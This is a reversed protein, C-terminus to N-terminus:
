DYFLLLLEGFKLKYLITTKGAALWMKDFDGNGKKKVVKFYSYMNQQKATKKPPKEPARMERM